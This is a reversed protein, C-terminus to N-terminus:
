IKSKNYFWSNQSVLNDITKGNFYENVAKMLGPFSPTYDHGAIVGGYKVKPYWNILDEMVNEYLHGADIFVFDISEDEYLKAADVTSMKHYRIINSLPEINKKFEDFATLKGQILTQNTNYVPDTFEWNDVCDFRIDKKSNVIEVGMYVASTGKWSGLEVFISGSPFRNVMETYLTSFSFFGQINQYYHEM